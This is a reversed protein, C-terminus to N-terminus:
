YYRDFKLFLNKKKDTSLINEKNNSECAGIWGLNLVFVFLLSLIKLIKINKHM